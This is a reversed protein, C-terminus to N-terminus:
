SHPPPIHSPSLHAQPFHARLHQRPFSSAFPLRNRMESHWGTVYLERLGDAVPRCCVRPFALKALAANLEKWLDPPRVWGGAGSGVMDLEGLVDESIVSFVASARCLLTVGFSLKEDKEKREKESIAREYEYAGLSTIVSHSFNSLAM